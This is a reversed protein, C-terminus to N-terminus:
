GTEASVTLGAREAIKTLLRRIEDNHRHRAAWYDPTVHLLVNRVELLYDEPAPEDSPEKEREDELHRRLTVAAESYLDRAITAEERALRILDPVDGLRCLEIRGYLAERLAPTGTPTATMWARFVRVGERTPEYRDQAKRGRGPMRNTCRVRPPGHGPRAMQPLANYATTPHFQSRAFRRELGQAVEAVTQNPEEILLGLIVM